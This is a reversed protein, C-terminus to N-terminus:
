CGDATFECMLDTLTRSDNTLTPVGAALSDSGFEGTEMTALVAHGVRVVQFLAGGLGDTYTFGFTLSSPYGTDADLKTIVPTGNTPCAAVAATLATVADAARTADEFTVLERVVGYEIGQLRVALRDTAGAGAM